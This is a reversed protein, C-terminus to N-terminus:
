SNHGALEIVIVLLVTYKPENEFQFENHPGQQKYDHMQLALDVIM